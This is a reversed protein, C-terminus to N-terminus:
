RKHSELIKVFFRFQNFPPWLFSKDLFQGRLRSKGMTNGGESIKFSDCLYVVTSSLCQPCYLIVPVSLNLLLLGHNLRAM